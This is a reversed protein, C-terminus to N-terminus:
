KRSAAEAKNWAKNLDNEAATGAEKGKAKAKESIDRLKREWGQM